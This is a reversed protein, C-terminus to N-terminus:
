RSEKTHADWDFMGAAAAAAALLSLSHVRGDGM